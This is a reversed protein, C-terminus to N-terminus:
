RSRGLLAVRDGALDEAAELAASRDMTVDLTVLPFAEAFHLAAWVTCLASVLTFVAWFWPKRFM